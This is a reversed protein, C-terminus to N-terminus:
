GGPLVREVAGVLDQRPGVGTYAVRGEADLIVVLSTGPVEYARVAAGRADWLYPYGPEHDEVHRKVSRRSQAVAVAVAVVNLRDGYTEHIRDLQPQLAACNACWSAWFELLTPRGAVYDLLQVANGDLDELSADPGPTGIALSVEGEGSQAELGIPALLALVLVVGAVPAPLSRQTPRIMTKFGGEPRPWRSSYVYYGEPLEGNLQM